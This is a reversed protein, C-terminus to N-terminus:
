PRKNIIYKNITKKSAPKFIYDYYQRHTMPRSKFISKLWRVIIKKM